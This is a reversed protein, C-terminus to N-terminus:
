YRFLYSIKTFFARNTREFDTTLFLPEDDDDDFILDGQRYRDDYGIFFVTGSNVRYTVLLNLGLTGSFTNHETINRLLLRDTFQYTTSARFIKVDFVETQDLPDILRSTNVNVSSQLRSLPRLFMFLNGSSGRGLFPADDFRVQDGWNFSGGFSIVRSTSVNGGLSYRTKFFDIGGFREMERRVDGNFRINKAFSVNLRVRTEEDELIDDFNWNKSYNLSPGWNIIWSEPWWRYSVNSSVRRIDRRRVFGVETDFQPDISYASINYSLHRGRNRYGGDFMPGSLGEGELGRNETTFASFDFSSTPTVQLRSDVGVLRSYSDLFERDTFVVGIHSQSYLDYRARGILTNASQGFGREAPDDFKGPAEDNAFLLGLTTKGVKGTVKAGYRPDVITRTHVFNVPGQIDFIEQGELFFPRLESFFLPFRQNVEIQPRDSEIQSFDPNYTFDLTLNSTIGYKLNVGGEPQREDDFGGTTTDLSGVQIATVTPLIELNRSTSLDSLGDLLGMQPMFGSVDRSVPAWVVTEDKGRIARAIQFGWRHTESSPYRLSKFPIAMEATWGDDVLTGGSDFLADWSRDGRPVGSSGRFGGGRGGGMLSDGQVGYGNLTFVFARQQDLFTDFYVSITDDGNSARDRDVRNARVMGPNSYHAHMGLYLHTSDFAVYVDTDETAAAGEVPGVQVFETIRAASQWIADDLQGDVTPATVARTATVSPRGTLIGASAVAGPAPAPGGEGPGRGTGARGSGRPGARWAQDGDPLILGGTVPPPAVPAVTGDARGRGLRDVGGPPDDVDGEGDRGATSERRGAVARGAAATRAEGFALGAALEAVIRDQLAFIEDVTGDATLSQAVMGTRTDVLRATIRVLQGIRQYGGTVVWGAGVHQGLRAAAARDPSAPVGGGLASVVAARGIVVLGGLSELDAAVTEAIGDGIWDDAADQSINSFPVVAVSRAPGLTVADTGVLGSQGAPASQAAPLASFLPPGHVAAGAAAPLLLGLLLVSWRITM